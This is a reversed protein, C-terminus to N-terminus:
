SNLASKRLVKTVFSQTIFLYIFSGLAIAQRDAIALPFNLLSVIVTSTRSSPNESLPEIGRMEVIHVKLRVGSVTIYKSGVPIMSLQLIYPM